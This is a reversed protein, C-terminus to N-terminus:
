SRWGGGLAKVLAVDLVFRRTELAAVVRRNTLMRDEAVLVSQYDAAGAAYRRQALRWGETSATLAARSDALRGDLARQSTVADAVEELAANLAGDYAAVAADYDARAGRYRARRRGGDFIPLDFAAGAEGFDAGTRFVNGVGLSQGGILGILNVNPYFDARAEDITESAAEARWRAATLDPRRGILSAPIAPPLGLGQLRALSPPGISAARDPPEGILTALRLRALAIQEDVARLDARAEPPGAEAQRLEANSDYGSAVRRRVLALTQDRVELSSALAARDAQLSALSAYAAAISTSIMLRAAALDARTAAAESTAAAVAARTRRWFDLEWNFDLHAAANDNWGRLAPPVPLGTLYSPKSEVVSGEADLTPAQAARAQAAFAEAGRLRAEAVAITPSGALGEAILGDLQPDAYVRWWDAQPWDAVPGAFLRQDAITAIQPKPGLDPAACSATALAAALCALAQPRM